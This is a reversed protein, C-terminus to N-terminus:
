ASEKLFLQQWKAQDIRNVCIFEIGVRYLSEESLVEKCYIVSGQRQFPGILTHFEANINTKPDIKKNILFAIGRPAIDLITGDFTNEGLTIKVPINKVKLRISEDSSAINLKDLIQFSLYSPTTKELTAHFLICNKVGPIDFHFLEQQEVNIPAETQIKIGLSSIELVWGTFIKSDSLRQFRARANKYDSLKASSSM